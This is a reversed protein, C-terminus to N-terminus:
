PWPYSGYALPWHRCPSLYWCFSLHWSTFAPWSDVLLIIWLYYSVWIDPTTLLWSGPEAVVSLSLSMASEPWHLIQLKLTWPLCGPAWPSWLMGRHWPSKASLQKQTRGSKHPDSTLWLLGQRPGGPCPPSDPLLFNSWIYSSLLFVSETITTVCQPPVRDYCLMLFAICAQMLLGRM